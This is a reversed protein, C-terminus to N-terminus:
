ISRKRKDGAIAEDEFDFIIACAEKSLAGHYNSGDRPAIDSADTSPDKKPFTTDAM